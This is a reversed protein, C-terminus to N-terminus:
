ISGDGQMDVDRVTNDEANDAEDVKETKADGNAVAEKSNLEEASKDDVDEAEAPEIRSEEGNTAKNSEEPKIGQPKMNRDKNHDILPSDDNYLRLLMAKREEKPLMLNLSSISRWLPLV